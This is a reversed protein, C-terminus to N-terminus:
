NQRDIPQNMIITVFKEVLDPDFQTGANRCLEELAASSSMAKRYPRDSTMADHYSIYTLEKERKLLNMETNYQKRLQLWILVVAAIIIFSFTTAVNRYLVQRSIVDRFAVEQKTTALAIVPYGSLQRFSGFRPIGDAGPVDYEGVPIGSKVRPLSPHNKFVIAFAEKDYAGPIRALINGNTHLLSLSNEEGIEMNLFIKLLYDQRIGVSVIGAFAGNTQDLRRSVFLTPRGEADNTITAGVWMKGVDEDRHAKFNEQHAINVTRSLKVASFVINGSMDAVSIRNILGASRTEDLLQQYNPSIAGNSEWEIKMFRLLIDAQQFAHEINETLVMAMNRNATDVRIKQESLERESLFFALQFSFLCCLLVFVVM